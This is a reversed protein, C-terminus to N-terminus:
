NKNMYKPKSDRGLWFGQILISNKIPNSTWIKGQNIVNGVFQIKCDCFIEGFNVINRAKIQVTQIKNKKNINKNQAKQNNTIEIRGNQDILLIDKIELSIFSTECSFQLVADSKILLRLFSKNQSFIVHSYIVNEKDNLFKKLLNEKKKLFNMEEMRSIILDNMKSKKSYKSNFVNKDILNKMLICCFQNIAKSKFKKEIISYFVDFNRDFIQLYIETLIKEMQESLDMELLYPQLDSFNVLIFNRCLKQLRKLNFDLGFSFIEIINEYNMISKIYEYCLPVLMGLGLKRSAKYLYLCNTEDIDVKASYIYNFVQEMISTTIDDIMLIKSEMEHLKVYFYTSRISLITQHCHFTKERTQVICDSFKPDNRLLSFQSILESTQFIVSNM